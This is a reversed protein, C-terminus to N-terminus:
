DGALLENARARVREIDIPEDTDSTLEVKVDNADKRGLSRMRDAVAQAMSEHVTDQVQGRLSAELDDLGSFDTGM